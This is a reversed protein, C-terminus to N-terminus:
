FEMAEQWSVNEVPQDKSDKFRSPNEKTVKEYQEQTVEYVGMWFPRTIAVEHLEEDQGRDRDSEPSGMLFKGAPIRVFKMGVSNTVAQKGPLLSQVIGRFPIDQWYYWGLIGASLLLALLVFRFRPLRQPRPAKRERSRGKRERPRREEPEVIPVAELVLPLPPTTVATAATGAAFPALAQAVAAPTAYRDGPKKAMMRRVVDLLGPPLDPRFSALPKPEMMQHAALVGALVMGAFPPEGALLHYLTCGLSYVDARIDVNRADLSQEPAMYNPTGMVVGTGTLDTSADTHHVARALGLDMMKVVGQRTVMLNHPKIDRHVLGQEHAHQLGLAAQRIYECSQQVPLRGHKQVLGHLDAGEIFEMVLFQTGKVENSDFVTVVNPHSLRAATKAERRFRDLASASDLCEKRIVKLAVTRDMRTQRAKYVAGMGGQGLLDVLVYQDLLLEHARGKALQTAQFATLWGRRVLEQALSKVDPFQQALAPVQAAQSPELLPLHCLAEIFTTVTTRAM